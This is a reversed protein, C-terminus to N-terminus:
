HETEHLKKCSAEPCSFSTLSSFSSLRILKWQNCLWATYTHVSQTNELIIRHTTGESSIYSYHFLHYLLLEHCLWSLACVQWCVGPLLYWWSGCTLLVPRSNVSGIRGIRKQYCLCYTVEIRSIVICIVYCFSCIPALLVVTNWEWDGICCGHSSFLWPVSAPCRHSRRWKTSTM